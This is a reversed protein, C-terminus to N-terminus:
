HQTLLFFGVDPWFQVQWSWCVLLLCPSLYNSSPVMNRQIRAYGSIRDDSVSLLFSFQSFLTSELVCSKISDQLWIGVSTLHCMPWWQWRKFFIFALIGSICSIHKMQQKYIYMCNNLIPNNFYTELINSFFCLYFVSSSCIALGCYEVIINLNFCWFATM